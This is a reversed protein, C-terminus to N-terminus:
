VSTVHRSGTVYEGRQTFMKWSTKFAMYFLSSISIKPKIDYTWSDRTGDESISLVELTFLLYM